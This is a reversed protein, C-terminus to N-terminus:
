LAGLTNDIQDVLGMEKANKGTYVGSDFVEKSINKRSDKVCDAFSNYAETVQKDLEKKASEDLEKNPSFQNKKSGRCVETVAIGQESMMKSLSVHTAIVGVSGITSSETASIVGCGSALWYAASTAHGCCVAWTAKPFAKFAEYAEKAGCVQGGPSDIDLILVETDKNSAERDLNEQIRRYDSLFLPARCSMRAVKGEHKVSGPLWEWLMDNVKLPDQIYAKDRAQRQAIAEAVAAASSVAWIKLESNM